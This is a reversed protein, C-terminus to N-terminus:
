YTGTTSCRDNANTTEFCRNFAVNSSKASDDATPYYIKPSNGSMLMDTASNAPTDVTITEVTPATWAMAACSCTIPDITVSITQSNGNNAGWSAFKTEITLTKSVQADIHSGYQQPDIFLEFNAANTSSQQIKAWTTITSGGDKVTYTKTGCLGTIGNATDVSDTPIAFEARATSGDTM